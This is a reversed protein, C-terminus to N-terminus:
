NNSVRNGCTTYHLDLNLCQGLFAGRDLNELEEIRKFISIDKAIFVKGGFPPPFSNGSLIVSIEESKKSKLTVEESISNSKNFLDATDRDKFLEDFPKEYLEQELYGTLKIGAPNSRKINGNINTIFIADHSSDFSMNNQHYLWCRKMFESLSEVLDELSHLEEITFADEKPDEINLLWCVRGDFIIPLCLESVTKRISRSYIKNFIKDKKVNGIKVGKKNEYVYGLVGRGIPQTKKTIKFGKQSKGQYLLYFVGSSEDVHYLAVNNWDYHQSLKEVFVEAVKKVNNAASSLEKVLNLRFLLDEKKEHFRTYLIAKGLPLSNLLNKHQKNFANKKRSFFSISAIVRDESRIPYFIFSRFGAKIFNKFDIDDKLFEWEKLSMFSQVDSIMIKKQNDTIYKKMVPRVKWWRKQWKLETTLSYSHIRRCHTMDKTYFVVLFYELPIFQALQKAIFELLDEANSATAFRDHIKNSLIEQSIDQVLALTGIRKGEIDTKPSAWVKVPFPRKNDLRNVVVEYEDNLGRSRRNIQKKVIDWNQKDPFLEKLNRGKLKNSGIMKKVIQNSYTIENAINIEIIGLIMKDFISMQLNIDTIFLYAGYNKGESKIKGIEVEVALPIGSATFLNLQGINNSRSEKDTIAARIFEQDQPLFFSDIRKDTINDEELLKRLIKNAYTINGKEDVRCFGKGGNQIVREYLISNENVVRKFLSFFIKSLLNILATINREEINKSERLVKDIAKELTTIEEYLDIISYKEPDIKLICAINKKSSHLQESVIDLLITLLDEGDAHQRRISKIRQNTKGDETERLIEIWRNYITRKKKVMYTFLNKYENEIKDM